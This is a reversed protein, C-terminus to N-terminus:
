LRGIQLSIALLLNIFSLKLTIKLRYKVLSINLLWIAISKMNNNIKKQWCNTRTNLEATLPFTGASKTTLRNPNPMGLM